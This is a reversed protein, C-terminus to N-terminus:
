IRKWLLLNDKEKQRASPFAYNVPPQNQLPKNNVSATNGSSGVDISHDERGLELREAEEPEIVGIERESSRCLSCLTFQAMGGYNTWGNPVISRSTGQGLWYCSGFPCGDIDISSNCHIIDGLQGRNQKGIQLQNAYTGIRMDDKAMGNKIWPFIPIVGANSDIDKQLQTRNDVANRSM